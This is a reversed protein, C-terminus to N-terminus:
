ARSSKLTFESDAYFLPPSVANDARVETSFNFTLPSCRRGAIVPVFGLLQAFVKQLASRVGDASPSVARVTYVYTADSSMSQGASLRADDFSDPAGGFLIMYTGIVPVGDEMLASDYVGRSALAADALLRSKVAEFHERMV